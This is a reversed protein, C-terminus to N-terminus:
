QRMTLHGIRAELSGASSEGAAAAVPAEATARAPASAAAQRQKAQLTRLRRRLKTALGADLKRLGRCAREVCDPDKAAVASLGMDWWVVSPAFAHGIAKGYAAVADAHRDLARLAKGLRAWAWGDDAKMFLATELAHVAGQHRGTEDLSVGLYAWVCPEADPDIRLAAELCEAAATFSQARYHAIGLVGIPEAWGPQVRLAKELYPIAEHPRGLDLLRTGLNVLMIASDPAIAAAKRAADLAEDKRGAESWLVSLDHWAFSYCTGLQAARQLLELALRDHGMRHYTMGLSAWADGDLPRGLLQDEQRAAQGELGPIVRRKM